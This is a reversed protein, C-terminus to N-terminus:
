KRLFGLEYVLPRMRDEFEKYKKVFERLDDQYFQKLVLKIQYWGADWTNLHLEPKEDHLAIRMDFSKVVLASAMDLVEKADPSLKEYIGEKYLLKYVYREDSMKGDRYIDDFYKSEALSMMEDKSMWFFENKIDWLKDKYNIQRLSSQNSKSEFLSYVISDYQFQEWLPHSENPAMYEDYWNVWDGKIVRRSLFHSTTKLYNNKFISIGNKSSFASSLIIQGQANARPTNQSCVIYGLADSTLKGYGKQKVSLGSSLQVADSTRKGRMTSKLWKNIPLSNDLNYLNKKCLLKPEFDKNILIDYEFSSQNTSKQNRLITFTLGWSEIDAFESSDIMYGRVFNYDSFLYRRFKNFVQGTLFVPSSFLAVNIESQTNKSLEQIRFIFQSLLQSASRDLKLKNM